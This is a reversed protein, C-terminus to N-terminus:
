RAPRRYAITAVLAALAGFGVMFLVHGVWGATSGGSLPALALQSLHHTPLATALTGIWDPLQDLPFWLGGAIAMPIIVANLIATTANGSARSGVALGIMAFPLSGLM